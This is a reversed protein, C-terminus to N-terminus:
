LDHFFSNSVFFDPVDGKRMEYCQLIFDNLVNCFLLGIFGLLLIMNFM